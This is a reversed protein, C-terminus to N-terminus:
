LSLGRVALLVASVRGVVLLSPLIDPPVGAVFNCMSFVPIEAAWGAHDLFKDQNSSQGSIMARCVHRHM